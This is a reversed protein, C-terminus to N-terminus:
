QEARAAWWTRVDKMHLAVIVAAWVAVAAVADWRHLFPYAILPSLAVASAVGVYMNGAWKWFVLIAIGVVALFLPNILAVAGASAALGLGGKFGVYVPFCHGIVAVAAGVAAAFVPDFGAHLTLLYQALYTAAAGKAFDLLFVVVFWKRGLVRGANAAGMNGSGHQRLDIGKAARSVIVPFPVAGILYCVLLTGLTWYM